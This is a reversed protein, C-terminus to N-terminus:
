SLTVATDPAATDTCLALASSTTRDAVVPEVIERMVRAQLPADILPSPAFAGM